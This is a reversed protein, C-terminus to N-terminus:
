TNTLTWGVRQATALASPMPSGSAASGIANDVAAVAAEGQLMESWLDRDQLASPMPSGSAASGIANDVAAVAAEGQLMESWLDRDQPGTGCSSSGGVAADCAKDTDHWIKAEQMGNDADDCIKAGTFLLRKAESIRRNRTRTM